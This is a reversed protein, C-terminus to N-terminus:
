FNINIGINYTKVLPYSGNNDAVSEPDEFDMPSFTLLNYGTFMVGLSKVGIKSLFRSDNFTYGLSLSKLRIYSADRLWLTADESNWKESAESARPLTGDPNEVSWVDEYLYQLLGRGGANTFPIRYEIGMMKNVNTAGIWQMNLSVGKYEFMSNLGFIYEPRTSYGTVMKDNGDVIKDGNLDDYM